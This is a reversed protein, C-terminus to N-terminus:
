NINVGLTVNMLRGASMYDKTNMHRNDFINIIEGSVYLTHRFFWKSLQVDWTTFSDISASNDEDTYQKSKYRGRFMADVFGGTWLIYGKVQNKPAYTLTKDNLEPKEKFDKIKPDNYSYNLNIRLGNVPTYNLDTEVGKIDVKSINQRQYIDRKGWM